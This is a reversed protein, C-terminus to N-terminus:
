YCDFWTLHVGHIRTIGLKKKPPPPPHISGKKTDIM